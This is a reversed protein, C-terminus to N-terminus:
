NELAALYPTVGIAAASNADSKKKARAANIDGIIKHVTGDRDEMRRREAVGRNRVLRFLSREDLKAFAEGLKEKDTCGTAFRAGYSSRLTGILTDGYKRGIECGASRKSEHPDGGVLHGRSWRKPSPPKFSPGPGPL